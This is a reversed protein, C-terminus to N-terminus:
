SNQSWEISSPIVDLMTGLIYFLCIRRKTMKDGNIITLSYFSSIKM